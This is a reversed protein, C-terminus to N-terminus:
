AGKLATVEGQSTLPSELAIKPIAKRVVLGIIAKVLGQQNPHLYVSDGVIAKAGEWPFASLRAWSVSPAGLPSSPHPFSASGERKGRFSRIQHQGTATKHTLLLGQVEM